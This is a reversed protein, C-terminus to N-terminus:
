YFGFLEFGSFIQTEFFQNDTCSGSPFLSFTAVVYSSGLLLTIFVDCFVFLVLRFVSTAKNFQAM